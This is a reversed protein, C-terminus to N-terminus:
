YSQGFPRTDASQQRPKQIKPGTPLSPKRPGPAEFLKICILEAIIIRGLERSRTGAERRAQQQQQQRQNKGIWNM